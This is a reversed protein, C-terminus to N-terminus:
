ALVTSQRELALLAVKRELGGTYGTLAGGAGLVRHCPLVIGLPNRGVAGGVARVAKPRGIAKAIDAYSRTHGYGISALTQWVSQQFSSGQSLDLPLDFHQRRGAFYDQLQQVVQDFMSGPVPPTAEPAWTPIGKQDAFWIGYLASDSVTILLLGIPSVWTSSHLRAPLNPRSSPNMPAWSLPCLTTFLALTEVIRPTVCM